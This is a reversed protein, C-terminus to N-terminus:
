PAPKGRTWYAAVYRQKKPIAMMADSQRIQAIHAQEAAVWAYCNPHKELAAEAARVFGTENEFVVEVGDHKPMPYDKAGSHSLLVVKGTATNPLADLMRAIAPYGTEDAVMVVSHEDLVGGGGPGIIAVEQGLQVSTAWDSAQGGEHIFVDVEITAGVVTRVTYVPRHLAKDGVPWKTSGNPALKPWEPDGDAHKPLVFRFHIARDDFADPKSLDITLRLFDASLKRSGVVTAFQFNPPFSGADVTDSWAITDAVEPLFHAIHGVLSDRLVHLNDQRDAEVELRLGIKQQATIGFSGYETGVTLASDSQALIPLGHESAEHLMLSKMANFALGEIDAHVKM